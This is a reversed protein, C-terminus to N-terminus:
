QGGTKLSRLFVAIGGEKGFIIKLFQLFINGGDPSFTTLLVV